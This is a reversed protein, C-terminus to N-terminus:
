DREVAEIQLWRGRENVDVLSEIVFVRSDWNIRMKKNVDGRHRLTFRHRTEGGHEDAKLYETSTLAEVAAWVTALTSWSEVQGGM